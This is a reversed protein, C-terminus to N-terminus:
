HVVRVGARVCPMIERVCGCARRGRGRAHQQPRLGNARAHVDQRPVYARGGAQYGDCAHAHPDIIHRHM